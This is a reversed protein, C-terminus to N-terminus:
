ELLRFITFCASMVMVEELVKKGTQVMAYPPSSDAPRGAGLDPGRCKCIGVKLMKKSIKKVVLFRIPPLFFFTSSRQQWLWLEDGALICM